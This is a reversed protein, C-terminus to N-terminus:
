QQDGGLPIDLQLEVPRKNSPSEIFNKPSSGTYKKFSVFFTNYSNFGAYTALSEMTQSELFNSEIFHIADTIRHHNRYESFSMNCHYKFVYALHSLPINLGAALDKISYEYNRFPHHSIVYGEIQTIYAVIKVNISENLKVDKVNTIDVNGTSWLSAIEIPKKDTSPTINKLKPYGYLLEPSRLIKVFVFLWIGSLVLSGKYGLIRTGEHIESFISYVLRFSLVSMITLLFISWNRMKEEHVSSLQNWKSKKKWLKKYGLYLSMSTYSVIFCLISFVQVYEIFDTNLASFHNQFSNLFLNVLPFILHLLHRPNFFISDSYLAEFYLYLCPIAILYFPGLYVNYEKLIPADYYGLLGIHTLRLAIIFFFALLYTNFIASKKFSTIIFIIVLFGLFGVFISLFSIFSDLM